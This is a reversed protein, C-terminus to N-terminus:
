RLGTWFADSQIHAKINSKLTVGETISLVRLSQKNKLLSEILSIKSGWRTEGPIKLSVPSENETKLTNQIKVFHARIVHSSNVEKVISKAEKLLTQFSRLKVIDKVLLNTSHAACSYTCIHPFETAILSRASLMASANDTVLGLVNRSGVENVVDSLQQQLYQGTHSHEETAM